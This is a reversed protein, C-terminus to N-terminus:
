IKGEDVNWTGGKGKRMKQVYAIFSKAEVEAKM